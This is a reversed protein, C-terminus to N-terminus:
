GPSGEPRWGFRGVAKLSASLAGAALAASAVANWGAFSLGLLRWSAVGCGAPVRVVNLSNIDFTPLESPTACTAPPEWFGWEAGAQYVGLGANVVFAIGVALLVAAAAKPRAMWLLALAAALAPVGLYYAYRQQLCLPCPTYGGIHEFGLAAIIVTAAVLLLLGAIASPSLRRLDSSVHLVDLM